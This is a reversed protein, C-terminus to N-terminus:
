ARRRGRRSRARGPESPRGIRLMSRDEIAHVSVPRQTKLEQLAVGVVACGDFDGARGVDSIGVARRAATRASAATSAPPLWRYQRAAAAGSTSVSILLTRKSWAVPAVRGIQLQVVDPSVSPWFMTTASELRGAPTENTSGDPTM